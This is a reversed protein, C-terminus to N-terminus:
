SAFVENFHADFGLPANPDVMALIEHSSITQTENEAITADLSPKVCVIVYPSTANRTSYRYM